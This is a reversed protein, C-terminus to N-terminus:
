ACSSGSQMCTTSPIYPWPHASGLLSVVKAEILSIMVRAALDPAELLKICLGLSIIRTLYLFRHLNISPRSGGALISDITMGNSSFLNGVFMCGLFYPGSCFYNKRSLIGIISAASIRCSECLRNPHQGKM